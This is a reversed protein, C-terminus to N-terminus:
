KELGKFDAYIARIFSEVKDIYKILEDVSLQQHMVKVQMAVAKRQEVLSRDNLNFVAITM